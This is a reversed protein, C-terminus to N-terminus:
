DAADDAEELQDIIEDYQGAATQLVGILERLRSRSIVYYGNVQVKRRGGFRDVQEQMEEPSGRLLMPPTLHGMALYVGDPRGIDDPLGVSAAFYNASQPAAGDFDSWDVKLQLRPVASETPQPEM